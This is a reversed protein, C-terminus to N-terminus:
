QFLASLLYLHADTTAHLAATRKTSDPKAAPRDSKPGPYRYGPNDEDSSREPKEPKERKEPKIEEKDNNDYVKRKDTRSLGSETM